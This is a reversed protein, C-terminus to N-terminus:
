VLVLAFQLKLIVWLRVFPICSLPLFPKLHRNRRFLLRCLTSQYQLFYFDNFFHFSIFFVLSCLLFIYSFLAQAVLLNENTTSIFFIKLIFFFFSILSLFYYTTPSNTTGM